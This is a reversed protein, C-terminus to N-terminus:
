PAPMTCFDATVRVAGPAGVRTSKVRFGDATVAPPVIEPVTDTAGAAGIVPRGTPRVLLATNPSGMGGGATGAPAVATVKGIVVM